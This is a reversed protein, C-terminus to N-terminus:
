QLRKYLKWWQGDSNLRYKTNGLIAKAEDLGKENHNHRTLVIWDYCNEEVSTALASTSDILDVKWELNEGFFPYM